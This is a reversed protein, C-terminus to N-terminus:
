PFLVYIAYKGQSVVHEVSDRLSDEVIWEYGEEDAENNHDNDAEGELSVKRLLLREYGVKGPKGTDSPTLDGIGLRM